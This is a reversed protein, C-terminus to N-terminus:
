PSWGIRVLPGSFAHSLWYLLPGLEELGPMLRAQHGFATNAPLKVPLV